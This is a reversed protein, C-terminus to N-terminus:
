KKLSLYLRNGNIEIIKVKIKQGVKLVDEMKEEKVVPIESPYLLGEVGEEIEVFAGFNTIGTIKGEKIEGVKYDKMIDEQKDFLQVKESLVLKEKRPDLNIIRVKLPKGIFEQLAKVIKAPDSDKVKPYHNPSLHSVPLFAPINEVETLLGGKNVKQIRVEFDEKEEKRRRLEEWTAEKAADALSLERYGEKDEMEIIKASVTEGIDLGRLASRAKHFEAGYIIGIGKIGLDLFISNKDTAIIKGKVLEGVKPPSIIESDIKRLPKLKIPM